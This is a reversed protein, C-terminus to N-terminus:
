FPVDESSADFYDAQQVPKAFPSGTLQLAEPSKGPVYLGKLNVRGNYEEAKAQVLRDTMVSEIHQRWGASVLKEADCGFEVFREFLRDNNSKGDKGLTSGLWCTTAVVDGGDLRMQIQMAPKEGQGIKVVEFGVFAGTYYKGGELQM